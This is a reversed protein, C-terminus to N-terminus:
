VPRPAGPLGALVALIVDPRREFAARPIGRPLDALARRARLGALPHRRRSGAATPLVARRQSTTASRRLASRAGDRAALLGARRAAELALEGTLEPSGFDRARPRGAGRVRQPRRPDADPLPRLQGRVRCAEAIMDGRDRGRDDRLQLDHLRRLAQAGPRRRAPVGGSGGIATVARAALAIANVGGRARRLARAPRALVDFQVIGKHANQVRWGTPEGIWLAPLPLRRAAPSPRRWGSPASAVSREDCTFVLVLPRASTADLRRAATLPV